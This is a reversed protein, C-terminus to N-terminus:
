VASGVAELLYRGSRMRDSIIRAHDSMEQYRRPTIAAMASPLDRLSDIVIGVDHELVFQSMAAQRWIIIPLGAVLYLSVKHPANVRLYDGMNGTCSEIGTGDWVLGFGGALKGPVAEPSFAGCYRINPGGCNEEDFGLGYLRWSVPVGRVETLYKAKYPALAGVVNVVPEFPRDALPICDTWYDFVRLPILKASEIGHREFYVKMAENHVIVRDALDLLRKEASELQDDYRVGSFRCTTVDHILVILRIGKRRKLSESLLLFTGNGAFASGPYQLLVTSGSPLKSRYWFCAVVWLFKGVLLGVKSRVKPIYRWVRFEEWGNQRLFHVVDRQAKPGANPENGYSESIVIKRSMVSKCQM